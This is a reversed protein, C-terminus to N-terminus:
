PTIEFNGTDERFILTSTSFIGPALPIDYGIPSGVLAGYWAIGGAANVISAYWRQAAFNWMATLAYPTNDLTVQVQFPPTQTNSLVLPILTTM